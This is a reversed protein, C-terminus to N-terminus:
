QNEEVFAVRAGADELAARIVKAQLEPMVGPIQFPPRPLVEGRQLLGFEEMSQQLATRNSFSLVKLGLMQFTILDARVKLGTEAFAEMQEAIEGSPVAELLTIPLERFVESIMEPPIGARNQLLEIQEPTPAGATETGLLLLDFRLFDRNVVRLAGTAQYRKWFERSTAHDIDTAVLGPQGTMTLGANVMDAHLRKRVVEPAEGVFFDYRAAEPISSIVSVTSGMKEIFAQVTAESVSGLVVGPPSMIMGSAEAESMGVFHALSKVAHELQRTDEIYIAVDYLSAQAPAPEASNQVETQYGLDNLFSSLHLAVPQDVEDVLITPARYLRSIVASVPLGLGAAIKATVSPLASGVSKVLVRYSGTNPMSIDEKTM